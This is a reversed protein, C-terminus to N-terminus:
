NIDAFGYTLQQILLAILGAGIIAIAVWFSARPWPKNQLNYGMKFTEFIAVVAWVIILIDVTWTSIEMNEPDYNQLFGAYPGLTLLGPTQPARETLFV